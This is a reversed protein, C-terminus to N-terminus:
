ITWKEKLYNMIKNFDCFTTKDEKNMFLADMGISKAPLIDAEIENGIFICEEPKLNLLKLTEKLQVPNPKSINCFVSKFYKLISAKRLVNKVISESEMTYVYLEFKQSISKVFLVANEDVEKYKVVKKNFLKVAMSLIKEDSIKTFRKITEKIIFDYDWSPNEKDIKNLLNFMERVNEENKNLYTLCDKLAKIIELPETDLVGNFDFFVAKRM